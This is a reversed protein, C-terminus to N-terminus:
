NFNDFQDHSQFDIRDQAPNFDYITNAGTLGIGFYFKDSGAGGYLNDNGGMGYIKNDGSGESKVHDATRILFSRIL